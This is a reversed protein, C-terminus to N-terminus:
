PTVRALVIFRTSGADPCGAWLRDKDDTFMAVSTGLKALKLLVDASGEPKIAGGIASYKLGVVDLAGGMNSPQFALLGPGGDAPTLAALSTGYGNMTFLVDGASAPAGRKIAAAAFGRAEQDSSGFSPLVAFVNGDRDAAIPGSSDGWAAVEIPPGCSGDGEPLLRPSMAKTGCSDAAYLASKGVAPDELPSLGTYLFRGQGSADGVAVGSFFSQVDYRQEIAAGDALVVEGEISPFAGAWSVATWNFFPTDIAQAGVFAGVPVGVPITTTKMALDGTPGAPLEWRTVEIDGNAGLDATMPGGHRGWTPTMSYGLDVQADYIAVVCLNPSQITFFDAYLSAELCATANGGGGGGAGGAGSGGGGGSGGAGSSAATTTASTSSTATTTTDGEDSCGAGAASTTSLLAALALRALRALTARTAGNLEAWRARRM